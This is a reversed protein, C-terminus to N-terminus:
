CHSFMCMSPGPDPALQPVRRHSVHERRESFQAFSLREDEFDIGAALVVAEEWGSAQWWRERPWLTEATLGRDLEALLRRLWASGKGEPLDWVQLCAVHKPSNQAETLLFGNDILSIHGM